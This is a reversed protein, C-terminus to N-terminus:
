IRRRACSTPNDILSYSRECEWVMPGVKFRPIITVGGVCVVLLGAAHADGKGSSRFAVSNLVSFAVMFTGVILSQIRM